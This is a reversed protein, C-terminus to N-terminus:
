TELQLAEMSEPDYSELEVAVRTSVGREQMTVGYLTDAGSMTIKNHTVVIFQTQENFEQLLVGFRRVNPEDLPADVEDLICFPSPRTRSIAFLLALTTMTKEGGSMLSLSTIKKGPPRAIIEIGADLVDAEPDLLLEAKGGGFCKRFLESFNTQVKGFTELFMERCTRNLDTMISRLHRESEQLDARQEVQSRYREQLEELEELAELNVNGIRRLKEQLEKIEDRAQERDWDPDPLLYDRESKVVDEADVSAAETGGQSDSGEAVAAEAIPNEGDAAQADAGEAANGGDSALSGEALSEETADAAESESQAAEDLLRVLDIGYEEDMRDVLHNRKHKEEQSRLQASGQEAQVRGHERRLNEIEQQLVREHELLERDVEEEAELARKYTAERAAVQELEVRSHALDERAERQRDVLTELRSTLETLHQEREGLNAAQRRLIEGLAEERKEAQVLELQAENVAHEAEAISGAAETAQKQLAAVAEERQEEAAQVAAAETELNGREEDRAAIEKALEEQEGNGLEIERALRDLERHTQAVRAEAEGINRSVTALQERVGSVEERKAVLAQREDSVATAIETERAQLDQISVQLEELESRRSLIGIENAGPTSIAGWPEIVEGSLTVLRFCRLGNRSLALATPLDEVLVVNALLRDYLSEFEDPVTLRERLAGLVGGQRPFHELAIPAVRDLCVVELAGYKEARTADLIGIAGEQTEVVLTQAHVGLAAEVARAFRSEVRIQSAVMGHIQAFPSSTEAEEEARELVQVVGRNVGELRRELSELVESRSMCQHLQKRNAALDGELGSLVGETSEVSTELAARENALRETDEHLRKLEAQQEAEKRREEEVSLGFTALNATLREARAAFNRRETDIQALQNSLRSRKQIFAVTEEKKQRLETEVTAGRRRAEDRAATLQTLASRQAVLQERVAELEKKEGEVEGTLRRIADATLRLDAKKSEEEEALELGRREGNAIRERTREIGLRETELKGRLEGLRSESWARETQQQTLREQVAALAKELQSVQFECWYLRFGTDSTALVSERYDEISLRVKHEKLRESLRRYRRAKSAQAKVRTVRKEIEEIIDSLRLLNDEVRALARLTEERKARYKSIGAAEEIIIRRDLHSAQLLVDIKGQEFISYSTQGMGTGIFLGKIDKLRCRQKNILYESDGSRYLRRSIAVEAYDIDLYRDENDFIITVEAYGSPKRRQTGNFIVDKMESGRMGKASQEGFIWKFADVVNSKGCGNPGVIGTMGPQFSFETRDAFSKFGLIELRKLYM